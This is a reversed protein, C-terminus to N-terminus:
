EFKINLLEQIESLTKDIKADLATRKEHYQKLLEDPRLVEEEEKPFKCQDLNLGLGLLEQATFKDESVICGSLMVLASFAIVMSVIVKKM